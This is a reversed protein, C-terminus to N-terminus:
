IHKQYFKAIAEAVQEPAEEAIFHGADGKIGVVELSGKGSVWEEWVDKVDYRSGLYGESYLVVLDKDVKRNERQANNLQEVDEEAGARYDDCSAEVVSKNEFFASQVEVANDAELKGLIRSSKGAWRYMCDRAFKGGGQAMIL